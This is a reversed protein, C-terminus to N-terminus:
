VKQGIAIAFNRADAWDAHPATKTGARGIMCLTTRHMDIFGATHEGWWESRAIQQRLLILQKAQETSATDMRVTFAIYSSSLMQQVAAVIKESKGQEVSFGAEKSEAWTCLVSTFGSLVTKFSMPPLYCDLEETFPRTLGLGQGMQLPVPETLCCSIQLSDNNLSISLSVGVESISTPLHLLPTCQLLKIATMISDKSLLRVLETSEADKCMM